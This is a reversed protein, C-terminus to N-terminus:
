YGLRLIEFTVNSKSGFSYAQKQNEFLLDFQFKKNLGIDSGRDLVIGKIETNADIKLNVITGYPYTKDGALIRIKGYKQDNYYISKEIDYGSSTKTSCGSCDAGYAALKGKFSELVTYKEIEEKITNEEKTIDIKSSTKEKEENKNEEKITNSKDVIIIEKEVEQQKVENIHVVVKNKILQNSNVLKERNLNNVLIRKNQISGNIFIMGILLLLCLNIFTFIRTYLKYM